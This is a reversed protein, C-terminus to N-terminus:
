IIIAIFHVHLESLPNEDINTKKNDNGSDKSIQQEHSLPSPRPLWVHQHHARVLQALFGCLESPQRFNKVVRVFGNSTVVLSSWMGEVGTLGTIEGFHLVDVRLLSEGDGVTTRKRKRLHGKLFSLPVGLFSLAKSQSGACDLDLDLGSIDGDSAGTTGELLRELVQSDAERVGLLVDDVNLHVVTGALVDGSEAGDAGDDVVHDNTDGLAVLVLHAVDVGMEGDVDVDLLVVLSAAHLNLDSVEQALLEDAADDHGVTDLNLSGLVDLILELEGAVVELLDRM